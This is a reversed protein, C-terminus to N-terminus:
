SAQQWKQRRFSWPKWLFLDIFCLYWFSHEAVKISGKVSKHANHTIPARNCLFLAVFSVNKKM